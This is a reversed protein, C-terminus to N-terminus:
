LPQGVVGHEVPSSLVITVYRAGYRALSNDLNELRDLSGFHAKIFFTPPLEKGVLWESVESRSKLLVSLEDVQEQNVSLRIIATFIMGLARTNVRAYYSRIAGIRELRAIRELIAMRTRQCRRGLEASSVRCDMQLERLIKRDISDLKLTLAGQLMEDKINTMFSTTFIRAKLQHPSPKDGLSTSASPRMVSRSRQPPPSTDHQSRCTTPSPRGLSAQNIPEVPTFALFCVAQNGPDADIETRSSSHVGTVVQGQLSTLRKKAKDILPAPIQTYGLQLAFRQGTSLIWTLLDVLAKGRESHLAGMRFYLWTFSTIPYSDNGPAYTLSASFNDWMPSEVQKCAVSITESSAKVMHGSRNLVSAYALKDQIAYQLEVYGIAGPTGKVTDAMDSSREAPVGIPWRPSVSTGIKQRFKVSTKSLFDTFVYNTGKGSPRYVVQIKLNPLRVGPNLRMIEKADWSKIEGMFIEALVEGSFRLDEHLDPINYVPVIGIVAVPLESLGIKRQEPTLPAEGAGFDGVNHALHAIGDATGMPVYGMQIAQTRRNYEDAWKGYLPLPVSSGAGVLMIKHEDVINSLPRAPLTARSIVPQAFSLHVFGSCAIVILLISKWPRNRNRVTPKGMRRELTRIDKHNMKTEDIKM